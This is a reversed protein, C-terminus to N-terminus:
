AQQTKQFSRVAKGAWKLKLNGKYPKLRNHHSIQKKAHPNFQIIYSLNNIQKLVLYLGKYPRRLKPTAELQM